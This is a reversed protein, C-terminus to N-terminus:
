ACDWCCDGNCPVMTDRVSFKKDKFIKPFVEEALYELFDRRESNIPIINWYKLDDGFLDGSNESLGIMELKWRGAYGWKWEIGLKAQLNNRDQYVKEADLRKAKPLKRWGLPFYQSTEPHVYQRLIEAYNRLDNQEQETLTTVTQKMFLYSM